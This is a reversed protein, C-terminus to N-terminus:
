KNKMRGNFSISQLEMFHCEYGKKGARYLKCQPTCPVQSNLSSMFPCIKETIYHDPEQKAGTIPNEKKQNLEKEKALDIALDNCKKEWNVKEM